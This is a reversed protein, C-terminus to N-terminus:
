SVSGGCIGNPLCCKRAETQKQESFIWYIKENYLIIFIRTEQGLKLGPKLECKM